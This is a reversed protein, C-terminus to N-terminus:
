SNNAKAVITRVGEGLLDVIRTRNSDLARQLYLRPKTGHRSIARAVLFASLGHRDAWTQIAGIPPWHPRSGLEMAAAYSVNSGVVGQVTKAASSEVRVESVISARLRGTDVPANRKADAEVILTAKHMADMMPQGHIDAAAQELNRQTEILGRVTIDVPM